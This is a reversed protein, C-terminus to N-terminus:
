SNCLWPSKFITKCLVQPLPAGGTTRLWQAAGQSPCSTVQHWRILPGFSQFWVVWLFSSLFLFLQGTWEKADDMAARHPFETSIRIRPLYVCRCSSNLATKVLMKLNGLADNANPQAGSGETGVRSQRSSQRGLVGTTFGAKWGTMAWNLRNIHPLSPVARPIHAKFLQRPSLRIIIIRM